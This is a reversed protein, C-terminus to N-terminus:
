VAWSGGRMNVTLILGIKNGDDDDDHFHNSPQQAAAKQLLFIRQFSIPYLFGMEGVHLAFFFIYSFYM